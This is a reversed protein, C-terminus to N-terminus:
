LEMKRLINRVKKITTKRKTKRKTRRKTKRKTRRKTKKNRKRFFGAQPTKKIKSDDRGHSYNSVKNMLNSLLIRKEYGFWHDNPPTKEMGLRNWFGDSVDDDIYFYTQEPIKKNRIIYDLLNKILKMSIGRKQYAEDVNITMAYPNESIGNTSLKSIQFRGVMDTNHYVYSTFFFDNEGTEFRLELSM